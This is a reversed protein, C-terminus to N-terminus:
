FAESRTESATQLKGLGREMGENEPGHLAKYLASFAKGAEAAMLKAIKM